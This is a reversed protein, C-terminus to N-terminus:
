GDQLNKKEWITMFSRRKEEDRRYDEKDPKKWSIKNKHLMLRIPERTLKKNFKEEIKGSVRKCTTRVQSTKTKLEAIIENKEDNTLTSPRGSKPKDLLGEYGEKNWNKIWQTITLPVCNLRRAIEANSVKKFKWYVARIRDKVRANKEEKIMQEIKEYGGAIMKPMISKAPM